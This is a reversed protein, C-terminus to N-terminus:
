NGSDVYVVVCVPGPILCVAVVVVTGRGTRRGGGAIGFPEESWSVPPRSNGCFIQM